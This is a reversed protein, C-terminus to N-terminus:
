FLLSTTILKVFTTQQLNRETYEFLKDNIDTEVDVFKMQKEIDDGELEMEMHSCVMLKM